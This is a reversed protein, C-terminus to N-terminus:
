KSKKMVFSSFRDRGVTSISDNFYNLTDSCTREIGSSDLVTCNFFPNIVNNVCKYIFVIKKDKIVYAGQINEKNPGFSTGAITTTKFNNNKTNLNFNVKWYQIETSQYSYVITKRSMCGFFLWCCFIKFVVRRM